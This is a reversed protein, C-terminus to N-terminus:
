EKIESAQRPAMWVCKCGEQEIRMLLRVRSSGRRWGGESFLYKSIKSM